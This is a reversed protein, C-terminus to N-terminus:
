SRVTAPEEIVHPRPDAALGALLDDRTVNGSLLVARSEPGHNCLLDVVSLHSAFAGFRQRYEPHRYSQFHLSVGEALFRDVEIYERGHGGLVCLEGDLKRCHDLVLDSKAGEFGFESAKVFRPRLNLVDMFHRLMHENLEALWKWPRVTYTQELFPAHDNWFPAGAYCSQLSKWHAKQWHSKSHWADGDILIDKLLMTPSAKLKVPVTLWFTGQPGKIKNRNNWDQALYQVDDMHVWVDGLAIKHFLGLWPLYVPQHGTVITSM